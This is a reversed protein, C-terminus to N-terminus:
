HQVWSKIGELQEVLQQRRMRMYNYAVMLKASQVDASVDDRLDLKEDGKELVEDFRAKVDNFPRRYYRRINRGVADSVGPAAKQNLPHSDRFRAVCYDCRGDKLDDYAISGCDVCQYSPEALHVQGFDLPTPLYVVGEDLSCAAVYQGVEPEFSRARIQNAMDVGAMLQALSCKQAIDFRPINNNLAQIAKEFVHWETWFGVTSLLTRVAQIKQWNHESISNAHFETMIESRLTEPEWEIWDVGFKEMLVMSFTIPHADHFSFLRIIPEKSDRLGVPVKDPVLGWKSLDQIIQTDPM